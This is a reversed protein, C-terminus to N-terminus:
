ILVKAVDRWIIQYGNCVRHINIGFKLFLFTKKPLIHFIFFFREFSESAGKFESM